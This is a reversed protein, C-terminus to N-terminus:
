NVRRGLDLWKKIIVQAEVHEYKKWTGGGVQFGDGEMCTNIYKDNFATSAAKILVTVMVSKQQAAWYIGIGM